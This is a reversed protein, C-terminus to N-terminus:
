RLRMMDNSSDEVQDIFTFTVRLFITKFVLSYYLARKGETNKASNDDSRLYGVDAAWEM